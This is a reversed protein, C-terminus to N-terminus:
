NKPRRDVYMLPFCSEEKKTLLIFIITWYRYRKLGNSSEKIEKECVVRWKNEITFDITVNALIEFKGWLGSQSWCSLEVDNFCYSFASSFIMIAENVQSCKQRTLSPFSLCIFLYIVTRLVCSPICKDLAGIYFHIQGKLRLCVAPHGRSGDLIANGCLNGEQDAYGDASRGSRFGGTEGSRARVAPRQCSLLNITM